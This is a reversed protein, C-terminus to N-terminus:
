VPPQYLGHHSSAHFAEFRTPKTITYAIYRRRELYDSTTEVASRIEGVIQWGACLPSQMCGFELTPARTGVGSRRTECVSTCEPRSRDEETTRESISVPEENARRFRVETCKCRRRSAPMPRESVGRITCSTANPMLIQRTAAIKKTKKEASNAGILVSARM